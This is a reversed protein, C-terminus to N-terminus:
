RSIDDGEGAVVADIEERTIVALDGAVTRKLSAAASAAALADGVDDGDLRTALFAGVFADGSGVPDVTDAEYVDQEHVEDGHLALSGHEGKTIVTTTLDYETALRNAVQVTEGDLGLVRELDREAAFLVDVSPLLADYARAARDTSWLKSRYNLDFATRAGADTARRLVTGTTEALTESLAPTIGSTFVVSAGDVAGLPLEDATATTVASDARDYTVDTGRPSGGQDLYYTGVRGTRSWVVGTRVGHARLERVIRRGLPTEPLKSLWVADRDLRAAAVAVNSEAGGVRVDLEDTTELREGRPTSLRLMTEGFTVLDSV